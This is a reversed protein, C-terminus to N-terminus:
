TRKTGYITAGYVSVQYKGVSELPLQTFWILMYQGSAPTTVPLQVTGGVGSASAAVPLDALAATNGVRVQVTTGPEAGLVLRVSSVTVTQGLDLLLGTGSQLNGFAASEYWNSHWPQGDGGNVIGQALEPHDGDSAGDPGFAAATAVELARDSASPTASATSSHSPAPSATSPSAAPSASGALAAAATSPAAQAVAHSASPRGPSTVGGSVLDYGGLGVFLVVLAVVGITWKRGPKSPEAPELHLDGNPDNSM